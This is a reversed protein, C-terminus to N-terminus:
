GNCSGMYCLLNNRTDEEIEKNDKIYQILASNLTINEYINGSTAIYFLSAGYTSQMDGANWLNTFEGIAKNIATNMPSIINNSSILAKLIFATAELTNSSYKQFDWVGNLHQHLILYDIGKNLIDSNIQFGVKEIQNLASIVISTM